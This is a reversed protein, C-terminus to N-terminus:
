EAVSTTRLTQTGLTTKINVLLVGSHKPLERGLNRGAFGSYRQILRGNIDAITVVHDLEMSGVLMGNVVRMGYDISKEGAISTAIYTPVGLSDLERVKIDAYWSGRGGNTALVYRTGSHIQFAFPNVRQYTTVQSNTLRMSDAVVHVWKATDNVLQQRTLNTDNLPYHKRFFTFAHIKDGPSAVTTPQNQSLGGYYVERIQMWGNLNWLRNYDAMVCGTSACGLDTPSNGTILSTRSTTATWNNIDATGQSGASGDTGPISGATTSSYQWPRGNRGGPFGAESYYSLIGCGSNCYDLVMQNAAVAPTSGPIISYRNFLGGDNGFQPWWEFMIEYHAYRKKTSLLGGVQNRSMAYIAKRVSDVRWIGGSTRNGSSHSSLCNQWFGTFNKGNFVPYFGSADPAAVVTDVQATASTDVSCLLEPGTQGAVLTPQAYLFGATLPVAFLSTIILQRINM